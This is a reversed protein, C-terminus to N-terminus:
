RAAGPWAALTRLTAALSALWLLALLVLGLGFAFVLPMAAAVAALRARGRRRTAPGLYLDGAGPLLLNGLVFRARSRRPAPPSAPPSAPTSAGTATM